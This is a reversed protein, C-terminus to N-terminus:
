VADEADVAGAVSFSAAFCDLGFFYYMWSVARESVDTSELLQRVVFDVVYTFALMLGAGVFPISVARGPHIGIQRARRYFGGTALFAIVLILGM